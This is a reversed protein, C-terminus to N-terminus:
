WGGGGGGGLPMRSSPIFKHSPENNKQLISILSARRTSGNQAAVHSLYAETNNEGPPAYRYVFQELSMGKKADSVIQKKLAIWGLYPTDFTAIKSGPTKRAGPQGAYVLNGPNNRKISPDGARFYGEFKAISKAVTDTGTTSFLEDKANPSSLASKEAETIDGIVVPKGGDLKITAADAPKVGLIKAVFSSKKAASQEAKGYFIKNFDEYIKVRDKKYQKDLKNIERTKQKDTLTDDSRIAAKDQRLQASLSNADSEASEAQPVHDLFRRYMKTLRDIEKQNGSEKAADLLKQVGLATNVLKEGHTMKLETTELFLKIDNMTANSSFFRDGTTQGDKIFGGIFPLDAMLPDNKGYKNYVKDTELTLGIVHGMIRSEPSPFLLSQWFLNWINGGGAAANISNRINFPDIGEFASIGGTTYEKGDKTVYRQKPTILSLLAFLGLGAVLYRSLRAFSKGKVNYVQEMGQKLANGFFQMWGRTFANRASRPLDIPGYIQQTHAITMLATLAESQSPDLGLVASAIKYESEISGARHMAVGVSWATQRLHREGAIQAVSAPWKQMINTMVRWTSDIGLGATGYVQPVADLVLNPSHTSISNKIDPSKLIRNGEAYGKFGAWSMLQSHGWALNKLATRLGLFSLASTQTFLSSARRGFKILSRKVPGGSIAYPSRVYELWKKISAAKDSSIPGIKTAADRVTPDMAALKDISTQDNKGLLEAADSVDQTTKLGPELFIKEGVKKIYRRVVEAMTVSTDLMGGKRKELFGARRTLGTGAQLYENFPVENQWLPLYSRIYQTKRLHGGTVLIDHIPDTVLRSIAENATILNKPTESIKHDALLKAKTQLASNKVETSIQPQGLVRDMFMLQEQWSGETIGNDKYVGHLSRSFNDELLRAQHYGWYAIPFFERYHLHPQVVWEAVVDSSIGNMMAKFAGRPSGIQEDLTDIVMAEAKSPNAALSSEVKRAAAEITGINEDFSPDNIKPVAPDAPRGYENVVVNVTEPVPLGKASRRQLGLLQPLGSEVAYRSGVKRLVIQQENETTLGNRLVNDEVDLNQDFISEPQHIDIDTFKVPETLAGDLKAYSGVFGPEGKVIGTNRTWIERLANKLAPSTHSNGSSFLKKIFDSIWKAIAQIAKRLPNTTTEGAYMREGEWAAYESAMRHEDNGYLDKYQEYSKKGGLADEKARQSLKNWEDIVPQITEAPLVDFGAHTLEHYALVDMPRRGTFAVQRRISDYYALTNGSRAVGGRAVDGLSVIENVETIAADNLKNILSIARNAEDSSRGVEKAARIIDRSLNQRAEQPNKTIRLRQVTFGTRIPAGKTYTTPTPLTNKKIEAQIQRIKKAYLDKSAQNTTDEIAKQLDSIVKELSKGPFMDMASEKAPTARKQSVKAKIEPQQEQSILAAHYERVSGFVKQIAERDSMTPSLRSEFLDFPVPKGTLDVALRQALNVRQKPIGAKILENARTVGITNRVLPTPAMPTVAPTKPSPQVKEVTTPAKTSVVEAKPVPKTEQISVPKRYSTAVVKPVEKAKVAVEPKVGMAVLQDAISTRAPTAAETPTIPTSTYRPSVGQMDISKQITAGIKDGHETLIRTANQEAVQKNPGTAITAGSKAEGIRVGLGTPDNYIFLDTGPFFGSLSKAKIAPLYSGKSSDYYYFNKEQSPDVQYKGIDVTKVPSSDTALHKVPPSPIDTTMQEGVMQESRFYPTVVDKMFKPDVKPEVARMVANEAEAINTAASTDTSRIISAVDPRKAHEAQLASQEKATDILTQITPGPKEGQVDTLAGRVIQEPNQKAGELSLTSPPVPKAQPPPTYNTLDMVPGPKKVSEWPRLRQYYEISITDGSTPTVKLFHSPQGKTQEGVVSDMNIMRSRSFDPHANEPRPTPVWKGDADQGLETKAVLRSSKGFATNWADEATGKLLALNLGDIVYQSLAAIGTQTPAAQIMRIVESDSLPTSKKGSIQASLDASKQLQEKTRQFQAAANRNALVDKGVDTVVQTPFQTISPLAQSSTSYVNGVYNKYTQWVNKAGLGKATLAVPAGVIAAGAATIAGPIDEALPKYIYKQAVPGVKNATNIIAGGLGTLGGVLTERSFFGPKKKKPAVTPQIVPNGSIWSGLSSGANNNQQPTAQPGKNLFDSLSM